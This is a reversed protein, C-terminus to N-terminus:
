DAQRPGPLGRERGPGAAPVALAVVAVDDCVATELDTLLASIAETLAAAGAGAQSPLLRALGDEGLLSSDALRAETLGDTYLLLADGPGLHADCEAFTAEALAGVLMGGEPRLREVTGDARLVFASPHGGSGLVMTFGRQVPPRGAPDRRLLGYMATCFGPRGEGPATLLTRNLAGLVATPAPDHLAQARVTHRILATLSAAQAGKGCVDGVVFAWQNGPLSFVDYFDGGIQRPGVTRLHSALELGPVTPLQPPALMRELTAALLEREASEAEARKRRRREARVTSAARCRTELEDMVVAALDQLAELQETTAHRPRTDWVDVTGLRHGERTTLPCAAYFRVGPPGTVLPHGSAAADRLTDPVVYPGDALLAAEALGPCRAADTIGKLGRSAKFWARHADVVTVTAIPADFWRAALAVIRGFSPEAPIDVIGYRTM